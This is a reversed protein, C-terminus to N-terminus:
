GILESGARFSSESAGFNVVAKGYNSGDDTNRCCAATTILWHDDIVTGQCYQDITFGGFYNSLASTFYNIEGNLLNESKLFPKTIDYITVDDHCRHSTMM